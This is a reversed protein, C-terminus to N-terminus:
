SAPPPPPPDTNKAPTTPEFRSHPSVSASWTSGCVTRIRSTGDSVVDVISNFSLADRSDSACPYKTHTVVFWTQTYLDSPPAPPRHDFWGAHTNSTRSITVSTSCHRDQKKSHVPPASPPAALTYPYSPLSIQSSLVFPNARGSTKDSTQAENDGSVHAMTSLFSVFHTRNRSVLAPRGTPSSTVCVSSTTETAKDCVPAAGSRRHANTSALRSRYRAVTNPDSSFTEDEECARAPEDEFAAARATTLSAVITSSTLHLSVVSM